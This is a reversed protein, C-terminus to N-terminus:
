LVGLCVPLQGLCFYGNVLPGEVQALCVVIGTKTSRLKQVRVGGVTCSALVEYPRGIGEEAM